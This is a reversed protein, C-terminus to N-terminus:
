GGAAADAAAAEEAAEADAAEQDITCVVETLKFSGAYQADTDINENLAAADGRSNYEGDATGDANFSGTYYYMDNGYDEAWYLTDGEEYFAYKELEPVNAFAAGANKKYEGTVTPTTGGYTATGTIRTASM